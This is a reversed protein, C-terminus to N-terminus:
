YKFAFFPSKKKRRRHKTAIQGRGKKVQSNESHTSNDVTDLAEYEIGTEGELMEEAGM